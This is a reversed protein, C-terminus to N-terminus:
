ASLFTRHNLNYTYVSRLFEDYLNSVLSFYLNINKNHYIYKIPIIYTRAYIYLKNKSLIVFYVLYM